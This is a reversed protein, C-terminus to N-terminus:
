SNATHREPTLTDAHVQALYTSPNGNRQFHGVSADFSWAILATMTLAATAYVSPRLGTSSPYGSMQM